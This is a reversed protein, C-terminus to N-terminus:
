SSAFLQMQFFFFIGGALTILFLALFLFKGIRQKAANRKLVLIKEKQLLLTEELQQENNQSELLPVSHRLEAELFGLRHNLELLLREKQQLQEKSEEWLIKYKTEAETDDSTSASLVHPNHVQQSMKEQELDEKRFFLKGKKRLPNLKKKQVYRDLTRTSVELFKAAENRDFLSNGQTM